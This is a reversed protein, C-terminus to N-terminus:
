VRQAGPIHKLQSASASFIGGTVRKGIQIILGMHICQLPFFSTKIKDLQDSTVKAQM